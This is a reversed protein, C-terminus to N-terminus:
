QVYLGVLEVAIDENNAAKNLRIRAEIDDTTPAELQKIFNIPLAMYHAAVAAPSVTREMGCLTM